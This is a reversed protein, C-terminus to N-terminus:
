VSKKPFLNAVIFHPAIFPQNKSISNSIKKNQLTNAEREQM